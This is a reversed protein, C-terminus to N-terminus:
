VNLIDVSHRIILQGLSAFNVKLSREDKFKGDKGRDIETHQVTISVTEKKSERLLVKTSEKAETAYTAVFLLFCVSFANLSEM